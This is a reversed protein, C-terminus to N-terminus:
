PVSDPPPPPREAADSTSTAAPPNPLATTTAGQMMTLLRLQREDVALEVKVKIAEIRLSLAWLRCTLGRRVALLLQQFIGPSRHSETRMRLLQNEFSHPDTLRLTTACAHRAEYMALSARYESTRSIAGIAEARDLLQMAEILASAVRPIVHRPLLFRLYLLLGYIGLISLCLSLIDIFRM